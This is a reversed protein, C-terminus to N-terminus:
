STPAGKTNAKKMLGGKRGAAATEASTWRHATGNAQSKRGGNRAIAKRKAVSMSAFGRKSINSM